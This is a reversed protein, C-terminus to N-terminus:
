RLSLIATATTTELVRSVRIPLIVGAPVGTFTVTDGGLMVVDLNGAGGVYLARSAFGLDNDDDPTVLVANNAPQGVGGHTADIAM